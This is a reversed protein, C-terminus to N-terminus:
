ADASPDADPGAFGHMRNVWQLGVMAGKSAPLLFWASIAMIPLWTAFQMWMPPDFAQKSALALPIAIHGVILITLYPPADDARHGTFDLGCVGCAPATKVYSAFLRGQGCQPCKGAAGRLLATLWRKKHAAEGGFTQPKETMAINHAGMYLEVVREFM